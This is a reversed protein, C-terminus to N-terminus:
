KVVEITIDGDECDNWTNNAKYQVTYNKASGTYPFIKSIVYVGDGPEVTASVVSGSENVLRVGAVTGSITTVTIKTVAGKTITGVNETSTVRGVGPLSKVVNVTITGDECDIWQNNFKYQVKYSNESGTYVFKKTITYVGGQEPTITATVFIGKSNILRVGAITGSTTTVTIKTETGILIMKDNEVKTVKAVGTAVKVVNITITGDACDTWVNNSKFQVKYTKESGYYAFKKTITFEGSNSTVSASVVSGAENLLRVNDVRGQVTSVVITTETGVVIEGGNIVSTVNAVGDAEKVVKITISGDECDYWDDEFKYQVKYTKEQNSYPFVKSITYVGDNFEVTASVYTGSENVLRVKSITGKTAQVFIKSTSNFEVSTSVNETSIVKAGHEAQPPTVDKVNVKFTGAELWQGAVYYKVTFTKEGGTVAFTNTLTYVNSVSSKGFSVDAGDADVVKVDTVIEDATVTVSTEAGVTIEGTNGTGTISALPLDKSDLIENCQADTCRKVVQTGEITWDGATHEHTATKNLTVTATAKTLDVTQGVSFYSGTTASMLSGASRGVALSGAKVSDTKLWDSHIMISASQDATDSIAKLKFTAITEQTALTIPRSNISSDASWSINALKYQTQSKWYSPNSNRGYATATPNSNGDVKYMDALTGTFTLYAKAATSGAPVVVQFATADYLVPISMTYIPFNTKLKISVTIIDDKKIDTKDTTIEFEAKAKSEDVSLEAIKTKLSALYGDVISQDSLDLQRDFSAIFDTLAKIESEKYVGNTLNSDAPVNKAIYDDLTAYSALNTPIEKLNAIATEIAEAYGDVTAQDAVYLDYNVANIAANLAEVSKTTYKTLNGPVKDLAARVKSYDAPDNTLMPIEEQQVDTCESCVRQKLGKSTYTAPTVIEWEGYKHPALPLNESSLEKECVSCFVKSTGAVTCTSPVVVPELSPTHTTLKDIKRTNVLSTCVTCYQGEQGEDKCTAPTIVTWEGPTHDKKEITKPTRSVEQSCVSCYVVEDYSGLESCSSDNVNERVAAMPTHATKTNTKPTRSLEIECVTCYVVEDYSGEKSCSAPIDNEKVATGPTHTTLKAIQTGTQITQKCDDCYTDGTYGFDKCTAAVANITRTNTHACVPTTTEFLVADACSITQGFKAAVGCEAVTPGNARAIFNHKLSDTKTQTFGPDIFIKGKGDEPATAKVRLKLSLVNTYSSYQPLMDTSPDGYNAANVTFSCWALAYQAKQADTYGAASYLQKIQNTNTLLDTLIVSKTGYDALSPAIVFNNNATTSSPEYYNKDYVVVAGFTPSPYDMKINIDVTIDNGKKPTATTCSLSYAANYDTEEVASAMVAFVNVIMLLTLALSLIRKKM